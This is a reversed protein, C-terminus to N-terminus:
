KKKSTRRIEILRKVDNLIGDDIVHIMLWRQGMSQATNEYLRQTYGTMTLLETETENREREGIVVLAIFFGEM